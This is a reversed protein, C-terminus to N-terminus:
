KVLANSKTVLDSLAKDVNGGLLVDTLADQIHKQYLATEDFQPLSYYNNLAVVELFVENSPAAGIVEPDETLKLLAPLDGKKVVFLKAGDGVTMYKVFDWAGEKNKATTPIYVNSTDLLSYGEGGQAKAGPLPMLGFNIGADDAMNYFWPGDMRFVQTGLLFPDQPTYVASAGTSVYNNFPDRGWKAVQSATFELVKRFGLNDATLKSGDGAGFDTGFAYTFSYPWYYIAPIFPGGMQTINNGQKVTLRDGMEMLEELNQPLTSVGAQALLDKNYFLAYVNLSIPLGYIKGEYKQNNVAAASMASIDLGDRAILEDLPMAIEESAYKPISSGFDDTVDPGQGGSIATIIKQQDPVSLGVVEYKDQSKNYEAIIEEILQGEEGGWLYWFDVKQKGGAATEKTGASWLSGSVMVLILLVILSTRFKKM